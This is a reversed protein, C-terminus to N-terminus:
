RSQEEGQSEKGLERRPSYRGMFAMCRVVTSVVGVELACLRLVNGEETNSPFQKLAELFILYPLFAIEELSSNSLPEPFSFSITCTFLAYM